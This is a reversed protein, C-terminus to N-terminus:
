RHFARRLTLNAGDDYAETQAETADGVLFKDDLTLVYSSPRLQSVVFPTIAKHAGVGLAQIDVDSLMLVIIRNPSRDSAFVQIHWRSM